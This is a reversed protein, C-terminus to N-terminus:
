AQPQHAQEPAGGNTGSSATPGADTTPTGAPPKEGYGGYGYGYGGSVGYKGGTAVIGLINGGANDILQLAKRVADRPTKDIRALMVIGSARELLPLADSVLLLPTSDVIVIDSDAHLESLLSAMRLSGLLASPNPPVAGGPLVRLGSGFPEIERLADAV